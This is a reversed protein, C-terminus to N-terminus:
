RPAPAAIASREDGARRVPRDARRRVRLVRRVIAPRLLTAPPALLHSVRTLALNVEDDEAAAVFTRELYRNIRDTGRPKPGVTQPYIFDAGAAVQWPNAVVKATARAIARSSSPGIGHRDICRALAEAQLAASSMGQGYIPNFSAVGDGVVGFGAPLRRVQDWHRRQSSPFRHHRPETLWENALLHTLAPDPLSAAFALIGDRDLPSADGFYGGLILKWRDGETPLAVGIRALAPSNQVVAFTAGDLDGPHRRVDLGCYTVDIEVRSVPPADYGAREIWTAASSGRGSADVVLGAEISATEGDHEVTVGAVRDDRVVLGRVIAEDIITVNPLARVRERLVTEVLARSSISKVGGLDPIRRRVAGAAWWHCRPDALDPLVGGREILELTTGPLLRELAAAGAALLVHAFGGQAAISTPEFSGSPAPLPLCHREVVVVERTRTALAAATSLGAVSAGVVVAREISGM